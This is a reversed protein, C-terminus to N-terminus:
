HKFHRIGTTVMALGHDNCYDISDQDRKSGGPQIVQQIGAECAIAVSDSFPFFADSAMTGGKFPLDFYRAKAIAQRLAEVRSTQGVGIGTLQHNYTLVIANSKAHKVVTNAFAMENYGQDALPSSQTVLQMDEPGETKLDRDQQLVGDLVTKVEKSAKLAQRQKLIIRNKKQKLQELAKAEFDPAILVEFFLDGIATATAEDLTSNTALIGGFASVPDGQYAAEWAVKLSNDCGVGCPNTHKIVAFSNKPLDEILQVAADVDVLNNHSLQKGNLQDFYADLNGHFNSQQHPNEGYRLNQSPGLSIPATTEAQLSQQITTDYQASFAFAKTAWYQRQELRTCGKQDILIQNLDPLYDASPIVAVSKYNKAAARILSIGGIDIHEVLTELDAENELAEEFPYCDVIVLDIGPIEYTKMTEDDVGRRSLIGGFVKPHLTKVRGGLISPYETLSEVAEAKYGQKEIFDKTGGSSIINIQHDSLTKLLEPLASKNNVSILATHIPDM